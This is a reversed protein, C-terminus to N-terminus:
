CGDPPCGGPNEGGGGPAEVRLERAPAEPGIRQYPDLQVIAVTWLYNGPAGAVGYAGLVDIEVQNARVPSAAGYHDPQGNRWIRVEFGQNAELPQGNWQWTFTARGSVSANNNPSVLLPAGYNAATPPPTAAAVHTPPAAQPAPSRTPSPAPLTPTQTPSPLPTVTVVVTQITPAQAAVQTATTPPASATATAAQTPPIPTATPAAVLAISTATASPALITPATVTAKVPTSRAAAESASGGGLGRTVFVTGAIGLVLLLAIIAFPWIQQSRRQTAPVIAQGKASPPTAIPRSGQTDLRRQPARPEQADILQTPPPQQEEVRQAEPQPRAATPLPVAVPKTGAIGTAKQLDAALAGATQYRQAPSKALAKQLVQKVDRTLRITPGSWQLPETVHALLTALPTSRAYPSVGSLMKFLVVGLSYIDTRHDVQQGQAQEPSMFEPTGVVTGMRTIATSEGARVLGFDTLTVHGDPAVMINSPKIDRHIMGNHHAHDLAAAVQGTIAVAAPLPLPGNHEIVQDLNAGQLYQMVIYFLGGQHGVDYITVINPHHLRAAMRAEHQFRQVFEPDNALAEPLVKIAIVRDLDADYAKYVVAMGGRGIEEIIGYRGIKFQPTSQTM